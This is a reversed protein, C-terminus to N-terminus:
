GPGRQAAIRPAFLLRDIDADSLRQDSESAAVVFEVLLTLEEHLEKDHLTVSLADEPADLSM